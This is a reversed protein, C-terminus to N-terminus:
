KGLIMVMDILYEAGTENDKLSVKNDDGGNVIVQDDTTYCNTFRVIEGDDAESFDYNIMESRISKLHHGNTVKMEM